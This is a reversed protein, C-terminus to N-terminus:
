RRSARTCSPRSWARSTVLDTLGAGDAMAGEMTVWLPRVSDAAVCVGGVADGVKKEDAEPAIGGPNVAEM